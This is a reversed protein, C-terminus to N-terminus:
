NTIISEPYQIIISPNKRLIRNTILRAQYNYRHKPLTEIILRDKENLKRLAGRIFMEIDEDDDIQLKVKNVPSEKISKSAIILVIMITLWICFSAVKLLIVVM